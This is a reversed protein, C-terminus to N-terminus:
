VEFSSLISGTSKFEWTLVVFGFRNVDPRSQRIHAM